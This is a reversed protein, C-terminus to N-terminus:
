LACKVRSPFPTRRGQNSALKVRASKFAYLMSLHVDLLYTQYLVCHVCVLATNKNRESQLESELWLYFFLSIPFPLLDRSM